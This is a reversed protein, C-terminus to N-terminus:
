GVSSRYFVLEPDGEDLGVLEGSFLWQEKRLLNLMPLNSRNTSTFMEPTTSQRLSAHLLESGIGERRHDAHVVLLEILDRGFFSRPHVTAFGSVQGQSESVLCDGSEIRRALLSARDSYGSAGGNISLVANADVTTAPRVV